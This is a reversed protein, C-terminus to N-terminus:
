IWRVRSTQINELHPKNGPWRLHHPAAYSSGCEPLAAPGPNRSCVLLGCQPCPCSWCVPVWSTLVLVCVYQIFLSQEFGLSGRFQTYMKKPGFELPKNVLFMLLLTSLKLSVLLLLSAKFAYSGMRGGFWEGFGRRRWFMHSRVSLGSALWRCSSLHCQHLISHLATLNGWTENM